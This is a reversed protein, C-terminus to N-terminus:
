KRFSVKIMITNLFLYNGETLRLICIELIYRQFFITAYKVVQNTAITGSCTNVAMPGKTWCIYFHQIVKGDGNM